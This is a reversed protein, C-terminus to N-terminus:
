CNGHILHLRPCSTGAASMPADVCDQSWSQPLTCSNCLWSWKLFEIILWHTVSSFGRCFSESHTNCLSATPTLHTNALAVTPLLTLFTCHRGFSAVHLLCLCDLGATLSIKVVGCTAHLCHLFMLVCLSMCVLVCSFLSLSKIYKREIEWEDM